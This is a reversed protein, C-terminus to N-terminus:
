SKILVFYFKIFIMKIIPEFGLNFLFNIFKKVYFKLKEMGQKFKNLYREIENSAERFNWKMDHVDFGWM